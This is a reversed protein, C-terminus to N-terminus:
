IFIQPNKHNASKYLTCMLFIFIQLQPTLGLIHLESSQLSVFLTSGVKLSKDLQRVVSGRESKQKEKM